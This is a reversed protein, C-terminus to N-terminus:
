YSTLTGITNLYAKLLSIFDNFSIEFRNGILMTFPAHGSSLM